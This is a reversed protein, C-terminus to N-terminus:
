IESICGTFRAVLAAASAGTEKTAEELLLNIEEWRVLVIRVSVHVISRLLLSNRRVAVSNEEPVDLMVVVVDGLLDNLVVTAVVDVHRIMFRDDCM